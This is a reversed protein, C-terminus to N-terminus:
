MAKINWAGGLLYVEPQLQLSATTPQHTRVPVRVALESLQKRM